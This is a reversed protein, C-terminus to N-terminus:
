KLYPELISICRELVAFYQSKKEAGGNGKLKDREKQLLTLLLKLQAKEQKSFKSVFDKWSRLWEELQKFLASLDLKNESFDGDQICMVYLALLTLARWLALALQRVDSDQVLPNLAGLWEELKGAVETEIFFKLQRDESQEILKRLQVFYSKVADYKEYQRVFLPFMDPNLKELSDFVAVIDSLPTCDKVPPEEQKPINVKQESSDRCPGNTVTLRVTYDGPQEYRHQTSSETGTQGDGFDWQYQAPFSNQATFVKANPDVHTVVGSVQFEAKPMQYVRVKIQAQRGEHTYTLTVEKMAESEGPTVAYPRFVWQKEEEEYAAGPGAVKGGEPRVQITYAGEDQQCYEDTELSIAPPEAPDEEKTENVLYYVPPCDSACLYPLYFDAIVVKDPLEDTIQQLDDDEKLDKFFFTNIIDMQKKSLSSKLKANQIRHLQTQSLSAKYNITGKIFSTDIEELQGAEEAPAGTAAKPAEPAAEKYHRVPAAEAKVEQEPITEKKKRIFLNDPVKRTRSREHYVLIFTGGMPVGAKHQIGPHLKVYYGFKQLMSLYIWRLKYDNYLALFQADKCAYLLVDLHDIIDESIGMALENDDGASAVSAAQHFEKVKQAVLMLADYRRALAAMNFGSLTTTLIEALKAIYYLLAYGLLTGTNDTAAKQMGGISNGLGVGGLFQEVEIYKAPLTAYFAEFLAGLTNPKYRYAPDCQRLLPVKPVGENGGQNDRSFLVIDYYYKLEKCLQCLLGQALTDYLAELDQFHCHTAPDGAVGARLAAKSTGNVILALQERLTRIDASLALTEFPLRHADRIKNIDALAEAYRRGVHGEIRLFNYDELDYWLPTKVAPEENNYAEAHYSLIRHATGNQQRAVSWYQYLQETGTAPDYYFPISKQSLLDPGLRSPTIRVPLPTKRKVAIRRFAEPENRDDLNFRQLLLVLRTFLTQIGAAQDRHCAIAPSPIFHQRYNTNLVKLKEFFVLGAEKVPRATDAKARGPLLSGLLLHRPFLDDEPCCVSLLKMGAQRLEDAAELLDSFLDYYYQLYIVEKPTFDNGPIFAFRAALGEFPNAPYRHQLLPLLMKYLKSLHDEVENLFDSSLVNQFGKLVDASNLLDTAPVHHRPMKMEPLRSFSKGNAGGRLGTGLLRADSAQVLLPRFNVEISRGKDDCSEPDCNKADNVLLEVFILTVKDQLYDETLTQLNEGAAARVLEDLELQQGDVYFPDYGVDVSADYPQYNQFTAEEWHVLYGQSTVGCGKTITVETGSVRVELGCVIGIGILHTRTAREQQDLYRFLSNLHAATLLQDAVFEPYSIPQEPLM